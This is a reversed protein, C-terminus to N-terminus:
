FRYPSNQYLDQLITILQTLGENQVDQHHVLVFDFSEPCDFPIWSFQGSHDNLFGPSLCIARVAAVQILTFDHTPSNLTQIPVTDVVRQQVQRLTQSSGGNVLLTRHALDEITIRKKKALSDTTQCLLYIHSTFLPTITIGNLKEAEELPLLMIDLDRRMFSSIADITLQMEPVIQVTPQEAEFIPIAEPLHTLMTRMPFGIKIASRYREGMNQAQEIAFQIEQSIRSLSSILEKGAPTLRISKGIRDFIAFGM